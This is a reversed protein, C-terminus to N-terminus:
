NESFCVTIVCNTKCMPCESHTEFWSALASADFVHYCSTVAAKLPSILELTIPCTDKKKSADDAIIRAIRQPIEIPHRVRHLVAIPVLQIPLPVLDWLAVVPPLISYHGCSFEYSFYTSPFSRESFLQKYLIPVNHTVNENIWVIYNGNAKCDVKKNQKYTITVNVLETIMQNLLVTGDQVHEYNPIWLGKPHNYSLISYTKKNPRYIAIYNGIFTEITRQAM